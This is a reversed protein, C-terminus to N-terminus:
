GSTPVINPSITNDLQDNIWQRDQLIGKVQSDLEKVIEDKKELNSQLEEVQESKRVVTTQLSM